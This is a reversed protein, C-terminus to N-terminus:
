NLLVNVRYLRPAHHCCMTRNEWNLTVLQFDVYINGSFSKSIHGQCMAAVEQGALTLWVGFNSWTPVDLFLTLLKSIAM